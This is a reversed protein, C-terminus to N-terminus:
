ELEDARKEIQDHWRRRYDREWAQEAEALNGYRSTDYILTDM